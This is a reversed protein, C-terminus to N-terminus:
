LNSDRSWRRSQAIVQSCPEASNCRQWLNNHLNGEGPFALSAALLNSWDTPKSSAPEVARLPPKCSRAKSLEGLALPPSETLFSSALGFTRAARKLTSGDVAVPALTFLGLISLLGRALPALRRDSHTFPEGVVGSPGCTPAFFVGSSIGPVFDTPPASEERPELTEALPPESVAAPPAVCLLGIVCPSNM